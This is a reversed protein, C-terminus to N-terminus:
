HRANRNLFNILQRDGIIPRRIARKLLEDPQEPAERLGAKALRRAEALRDIIAKVMESAEAEVVPLGYWHPQPLARKIAKNGAAGKRV